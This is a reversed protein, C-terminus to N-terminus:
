TPLSIFFFIFVVFPPPHSVSDSAPIEKPAFYGGILPIKELIDRKVRPIGSAYFLVGVLAVGGFAGSKFGFSVAQKFTWGSLNPQYHYRNTSTGTLWAQAWPLLHNSYVLNKWSTLVASVLFWRIVREECLRAAEPQLDQSAM